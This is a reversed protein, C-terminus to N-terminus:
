GEGEEEGGEEVEGGDVGGRWRGGGGVEGEEKRGERGKNRKRTGM